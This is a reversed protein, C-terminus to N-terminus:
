REWKKVNKSFDVQYDPIGISIGYKTAELYEEEKSRDIKFVKDRYIIYHATENKFDAYWNHEKDLSRSLLEAVHDAKDAEMEVTHMTWQKIWPTKHGETVPEVETSLIRVERLVSTGSLSEEIIIGKLNKM